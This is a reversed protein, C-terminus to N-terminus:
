KQPGIQFLTSWDMQRLPKNGGLATLKEGNMDEISNLSSIWGDAQLKYRTVAYPDPLWTYTNFSSQQGPALESLSAYDYDCGVVLGSNIYLSAVANVGNVTSASNNTIIGLIEYAYSGPNGSHNSISLSPRREDTEWYSGDYYLYDFNPLNEFM